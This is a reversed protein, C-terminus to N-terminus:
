PRAGKAAEPLLLGEAHPVGALYTRVAAAVQAPKLAAVDDPFSEVTALPCGVALTQALIQPASFLDDRAYVGEALMRATVRSLEAATVGDRALADIEDSVAQALVAPDTGPAPTAAVAFTGPGAAIGRYVASIGLALGRDQVLDRYLRSTAGGGLIEAAANLAAGTERDTGACGPVITARTWEAQKVLPHSFAIRIEAPPSEPAGRHRKPTDARPIRGFQRVAMERVREPEVDGAVLLVANNPAYWRAHFALADARTLGLIESDFGGVPRAYPHNMWMAMALREGLLAAPENEVRQRREERVVERETQFDKDALKLNAMRDAELRMVLPLNDTSIMQYYATFDLSTMANDRGGHEAVIKSFEGAPVRTTGKFMLHELLHALGTKGAPEDAAGVKYWIMHSAIPARHNEVVVVTMGNDLTFVSPSFVKAAAPHATCLLTAAALAAATRVRSSVPHRLM